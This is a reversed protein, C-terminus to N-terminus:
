HKQSWASHEGEKRCRQLGAFVEVVGRGAMMERTVAYWARGEDTPHENGVAIM